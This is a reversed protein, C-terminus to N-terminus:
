HNRVVLPLYVQHLLMWVEGGNANNQTGVYLSDSFVVTSNDWYPSMNNSDGLGDPGVQGWNTGDTTRWVEMGTISNYTFAYLMDGFVVLSRISRNETDGFGKAISVQQWDTGNCQQCRWLEHGPNDSFAYNYTGAYLYSDFTELTVSWNYSDGFGDTNVQSWSGSNGTSSRWVQTGSNPNDTGAYLHGNFESLSVFIKNNTNGFGGTVVPAWTGSDGSSSRWLEGGDTGNWTAAYLQSNFVAFRFVESNNTSTFGGGAVMQWDGPDGTDSRWIQGGNSGGSGTDNDTGAYLNSKFEVLHDIAQNYASGFGDTFVATWSSGTDTRWLQAGTGSNHAGAYLTDSFVALSTVRSNSPDGFGNTNVQEWGSMGSLAVTTANADQTELDSLLELPHLFFEDNNWDLSPQSLDVRQPSVSLSTMQAVVAWTSALLLSVLLVFGTFLRAKM